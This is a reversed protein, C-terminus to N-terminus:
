MCLIPVVGALAGLGQDEYLQPTFRGDISMLIQVGAPGLRPKKAGTHSSKNSVSFGVSLFSPWFATAFQRNVGEKGM